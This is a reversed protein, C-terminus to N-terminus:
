ANEKQGHTVDTKRTCFRTRKTAQLTPESHGIPGVRRIVFFM